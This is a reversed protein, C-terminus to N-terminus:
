LKFGLKFAKLVTEIYNEKYEPEQIFAVNVLINLVADYTNKFYKSLTFLNLLQRVSVVLDLNNDDSYKRISQFINIIMDINAANSYGTRKKIIEVLEPKTPTNYESIIQFRNIFADNLKNTGEYGINCTFFLRFNKPAKLIEGNPLEIQRAEDLLSNLKGLIGPRAFNGEEIIVIYGNGRLAKTILGDQWIFPRAKSDEPDPNPIMSGFLDSEEINTSCNISIYPIGTRSAIVRAATSKGSGSEGHLLVSYIDGKAVGRVIPTLDKLDFDNYYDQINAYLDQAYEDDKYMEKITDIDFGSSSSKITIDLLDAFKKANTAEEIGSSEFLGYTYNMLDATTGKYFELLSEKDSLEYEYDEGFDKLYTVTNLANRLSLLSEVSTSSLSILDMTLNTFINTNTILYVQSVGKMFGTAYLICYSEEKSVKHIRKLTIFEGIKFLAATYDNNLYDGISTNIYVMEHTKLEEFTFIKEETFEYVYANVLDNKSLITSLVNTYMNFAMEVPNNIIRDLSYVLSVIYMTLATLRDTGYCKKLNSYLQGDLYITNTKWNVGINLSSMSMGLKKFTEFIHESYQNHLINFYIIFNEDNDNKITLRRVFSRKQALANLTPILRKTIFNSCSGKTDLTDIESKTTSDVLMGKTSVSYELFSGIKTPDLTVNFGM